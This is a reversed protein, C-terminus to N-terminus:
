AAGAPAAKVRSYDFLEIQRADQLMAPVVPLNLRFWLQAAAQTGFTQRGETVMRLKTNESEQAEEM